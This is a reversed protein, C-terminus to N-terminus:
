LGLLRTWTKLEEESADPGLRKAGEVSVKDGLIGKIHESAKEVGSGGSTCFPVVKKGEFCYAEQFTDIISPERGWWIPFGVFVTDYDDMNGVKEIIETRCAEDAMEVNCRSDKVTYDLDERTYPVCPKIEFLDGNESKSLEAAVKATRGSASFFAVLVKSM